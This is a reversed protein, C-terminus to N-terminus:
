FRPPRDPEWLSPPSGPREPRHAPGPAAPIRRSLRIVAARPAASVAIVKWPQLNGGSPAWRAVDLIERVLEEALPEPRFERTSIRRKLAETVTLMSVAQTVHM